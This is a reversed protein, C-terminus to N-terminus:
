LNSGTSDVQNKMINLMENMNNFVVSMDVNAPLGMARASEIMNQKM